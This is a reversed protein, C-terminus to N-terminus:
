DVPNETKILQHEGPKQTEEKVDKYCFIHYLRGDPMRIADKFHWEELDEEWFQEFPEDCSTCVESGEGPLVKCSTSEAEKTSETEVVEPELTHVSENEQLDEKEEYKLWDEPHMFWNRFTKRSANKDKRNMRYHWDLHKRYEEGTGELFRLGCSACPEGSHILAVLSNYRQKLTAPTFSLEPVNIRYPRSPQPPDRPPAHGAGDGLGGDGAVLGVKLLKEFLQSVPVPAAQQPQPPPLPLQPPGLFREQPPFRDPAPHPPGLFREPVHEMPPPAESPPIWREQPPFRDPAPHPPGLFREPVHEMPPPAESPPIWREQPPFRDPAPHPPGLFREPVHEMPPSAESPPIWREQPPFRDPAPAPGEKPPIWREAPYREGPAFRDAPRDERERLREGRPLKEGPPPREDTWPHRKAPPEEGWEGRLRPPRYRRSRPPGSQRPPPPPPGGRGSRIPHMYNSRHAAHVPKHVSPTPQTLRNLSSGSSHMSQDTAQWQMSVTETQNSPQPSSDGIESAGMRRRQEYIEELQHVLTAHQETTLTGSNLQKKIQDLVYEQHKPLLETPLDNLECERPLESSSNIGMAKKQEAASSSNIGMAKKQEAASSSNIGMAKKQEAASSSNIGMAKKQEAKKQRQQELLQKRKNGISVEEQSASPQNVEQTAAPLKVAPLEPLQVAPLQVEPLQVEPLQVTPLQVTPLQVTVQDATRKDHSELFKPNVFIAAEKPGTATATIPWNPDLADHIHKDIAALKSVQFYSGWTQRLKYLALRSKPDSLKEFVHCFLHVINKSFHTTYESGVNKLISDLLYLSPLKQEPPVEKIRSEIKEVIETAHAKNEDAMTTLQNIIPKSNFTLVDLASAYQDIFREGAMM